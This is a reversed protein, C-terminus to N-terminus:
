PGVIKILHFFFSFMELSVIKVCPPYMCVYQKYMKQLWGIYRVTQISMLTDRIAEGHIIARGVGSFMTKLMKLVCIIYVVFTLIYECCVVEARSRWRQEEILKNVLIL